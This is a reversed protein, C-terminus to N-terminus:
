FCIQACPSTNQIQWMVKQDKKHFLSGWQAGWSVRGLSPCGGVGVERNNPRRWSLLRATQCLLASVCRREASKGENERILGRLNEMSVDPTCLWFSSRSASKVHKHKEGMLQVNLFGQLVSFNKPITQRKWLWSFNGHDNFDWSSRPQIIVMMTTRGM